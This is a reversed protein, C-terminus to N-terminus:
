RSLLLLTRWLRKMHARKMQIANTPSMEKEKKGSTHLNVLMRVRAKSCPLDRVIMTEM